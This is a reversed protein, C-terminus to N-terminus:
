EANRLDGKLEKLTQEILTIETEIPRLIVSPKEDTQFECAQEQAKQLLAKAKKLKITIEKSLRNNNEAISM